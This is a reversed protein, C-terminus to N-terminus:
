QKFVHVFLDLGNRVGEMPDGPSVSIPVLPRTLNGILETWLAVDCCPDFDCLVEHSIYLCVTVCECESQDMELYLFQQLRSPLM